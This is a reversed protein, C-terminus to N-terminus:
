EAGASGFWCRPRQGPSEPRNGSCLWAPGADAVQEQRPNCLAAAFYTDLRCQPTPPGRETRRVLLAEPREFDPPDIHRKHAFYRTLRAGAMASRICLDREAASSYVQRCRNLVVGPTTEERVADHEPLRPLVRRLCEAVGFYDAQGEVSYKWVRPPGALHHGLEHCVVLTYADANIIPQRALGGPLRLVAIEGRRDEEWWASAQETDDLWLRDIRLREGRAVFAQRYQRDIVDIITHYVNRPIGAQAPTLVLLLLLAPLVAQLPWM